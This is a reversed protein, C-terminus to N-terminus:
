VNENFYDRLFFDLTALDPSRPPKHCLCKLIRMTKFGRSLDGWAVHGTSWSVKHAVTGVHEDALKITECVNSALLYQVEPQAVIRDTEAQPFFLADARFLCWYSLEKLSFNFEEACRKRVLNKVTSKAEQFTCKTLIYTFFWCIFCNNM